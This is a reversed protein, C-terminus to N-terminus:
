GVNTVWGVSPQSYNNRGVNSGHFDLSVTNHSSDYHPYLAEDPHDPCCIGAMDFLPLNVGGQSYYLRRDSVACLVAAEISALGVEGSRVSERAEDISSNRDPKWNYVLNVGHAIFIGLKGDPYIHFASKDFEARLKNFQPIYRIGNHHEGVINYFMETLGISGLWAIVVECNDIAQRARTNAVSVLLELLEYIQRDSLELKRGFQRLGNSAVSTQEGVSPILYDPFKNSM